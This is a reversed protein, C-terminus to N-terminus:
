NQGFTGQNLFEFSIVSHYVKAGSTNLSDFMVQAPGLRNVYLNQGSSLVLRQNDISMYFSEALRLAATAGAVGNTAPSYFHFMLRNAELYDNGYTRASIQGAMTNYVAYQSPADNDAIDPYLPITNLPSPMTTKKAIIAALLPTM